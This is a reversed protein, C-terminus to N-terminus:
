CVKKFNQFSIVINFLYGFDNSGSKGLENIGLYGLENFLYEIRDKNKAFFVTKSNKGTKKPYNIFEGNRKAAAAIQDM